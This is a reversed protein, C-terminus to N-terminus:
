NELKIKHYRAKEYGKPRYQPLQPKYNIKELDMEPTRCLCEGNYKDGFKKTFWPKHSESPVISILKSHQECYLYFHNNSCKWEKAGMCHCLQKELLEYCSPCNM